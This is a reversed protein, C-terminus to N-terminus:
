YFEDAHSVPGMTVKTKPYLRRVATALIHEASHRLTDIGEPTDAKLREVKQGAQLPLRVDQVKGDVKAVVVQKALGPSIATALDMATAGDPLSKTKGDPLIVDIAM